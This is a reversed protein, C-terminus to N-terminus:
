EFAERVAFFAPKPKMDEDFLLPYAKTDRRNRWSYKDSYGWFTVGRFGKEKACARVIEGFINAQAELKAPLEGPFSSAVLDMESINVTLGLEALRRVNAAVDEAPPVKDKNLHMQLGVQHVPVKDKVLRKLLDYQRDSKEGLGECGYDNYILVAEPDVEHAIRFAEAIYDEGLKERWLSKRLGDRDDLAENVVDWSAVKGKYRTMVTKIHDKLAARLEDATLDNLYRPTAGHWIFAHGKVKMKNKEAFAVLEDAFDFAYRDRAPHIFSWKMHNEAVLLNFHRAVVGAGDTDKLSAPGLCAGVHLKKREAVVRLPDDPKTDKVQPSNPKPQSQAQVFASGVVGVLTLLVAWGGALNRFLM